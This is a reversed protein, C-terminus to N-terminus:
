RLSLFENSNFLVWALSEFGHEQALTSAQKREAARPPRGLVLQYARDVQRAPEPGVDNKVRVAM